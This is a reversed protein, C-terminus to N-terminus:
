EIPMHKAFFTLIWNAVKKGDHPTSFSERAAQICGTGAQNELLNALANTYPVDFEPHGQIAFVTNNIVYAANKCDSACGICQADNPLITVQDQHVHILHFAKDSSDVWDPPNILTIKKTGITWGHAWKRTHGGLAHAIIQHGFCVGALPKNAKHIQQILNMLKPIFPANDYVGFASGSILYGDYDDLQDPFVGDVVALSTYRFIKGLILGSFLTTFMDHYDRFRKPMAKNTHGALLIAIHM